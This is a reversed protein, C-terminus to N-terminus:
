QLPETQFDYISITAKFSQVMEQPGVLTNFNKMPYHDINKGISKGLKRM